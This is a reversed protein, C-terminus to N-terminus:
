EINGEYDFQGRGTIGYDLLDDSKSKAGKINHEKVWLKRCKKNCFKHGSKSKVGCQKCKM